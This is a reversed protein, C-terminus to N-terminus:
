PILLIKVTGVCAISLFGSGTSSFTIPPGNPENALKFGVGITRRVFYSQGSTLGGPVSSGSIKVKTGNNFFLFPVSPTLGSSGLGTTVIIDTGIDGYFLDPSHFSVENRNWTNGECIRPIKSRVVFFGGPTRNLSHNRITETGAEIEVELFQADFNESFTLKKLADDLEPVITGIENQLYNFLDSKSDPTAKQNKFRKLNPRSM